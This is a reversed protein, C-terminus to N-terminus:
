LKQLGGKRGRTGKFGSARDLYDQVKKSWDAMQILDKGSLMAATMSVIQPTPYRNTGLNAFVQNIANLIVQDQFAESEMDQIIAARVKNMTSDIDLSGDASKVMYSKIANLIAM